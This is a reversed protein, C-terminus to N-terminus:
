EEEEGEKEKEVEEEKENKDEERKKGGGAAAYCVPKFVGDHDQLIVAGLGHYSADTRLYFKKEVDPLMLIPSKLLHAKLDNFCKLQNDSWNLKNSCNKKLLDNIPASLISFNPIFRNYYGLTGMFSRLDKKTTPVPMNVIDDVRSRIPSLCNNGLKYGLYKIENFAFFCKDPGATLGHDRLRSLVLKIHNLHNSWSKSFIVINDFYCSVNSLGSLVKRMLRVFTACATKLGFPMVKFEMLGYKTSFATFKMARPDLPVQWYGKCLDLETFYKAGNMKHLDNNISPMPEADFESYKNLTRFDVCLRISGNPKRVIVVPSCYDSTSPQIIDMDIMRDVEKNFEDLLSLPIPCNKARIPEDSQLKINHSITKTRGPTDSMVDTFSKLLCELDNIKDSSLSECFNYNGSDEDRSPLECCNNDTIAIVPQVEAQLASFLKASNLLDNVEQQIVSVKSRRHYTKLMNAHYLKLRNGVKVYYDVGNSHVDTIIYPGKWQMLFKNSSNPLMVLVEDNVKFKRSTTKKDFYEKYKKASVKANNVVVEAMSQLKDRLSIIYRYSTTLEGDISNNSVLEHLIHLPGRVNRGYLLEFPSFKLSDNPNERYAFLAVNIYKDWGNPNDICIKKLMNKLTGNMREVMGNCSAHYPSTYIAKICLLKNIESMLDSKFQTGRDSIIEKPIGVRCFIEMLAEAVSVTDINRLAVAEPYRTAMDIVTLIYKHGKKTCPTIPGILDIAIRSFLENVIPMPVLPVKKPKSSFKQCSHCSKCFRHIDLSARPWYFKQMIKDITKRSSFHGALLSEHALKMIINRYQVPVVLQLKGVDEPKSSELCKRYILDGINVYKVTQCKLTVSEENDLLKRICALSPCEKQCESFEDSNLGYEKDLSELNSSMPREKVKDKAKARTVVNVNVNRDSVFEDGNILSLGADVNHKLGPILGIIVDACRIPAVIAKVKGSFFKSEVITHVTNLYLPRGLYDYVKVKRGRPYNLPVLTDRVVVTNCGTDFVVEVSQYFIKGDTDTVCNHLKEERGLVVGIKPVVKDSKKNLKYVPCNPRIHGVEGCHHCKVNSDSKTVSNSVKPSKTINDALPKAHPKSPIKDNSKRCKKMGHAVLYRDASEALQCSNQLSQELLFSRLDHSCSSLMQDFIMFDRVSEYNKEVNALELWKDFYQGLKCNFQVFSEDTDIISDRFKRRYVNSNIHFAKLLAKKLSVFNNVIDSSLSCYIKLARGRLLTGLLMSYDDEKWKYFKALREFRDIYLDIEDVTEDFPPIKPLSSRLPDVIPNPDPTYDPSSKLKLLELEHKREEDAKKRERELKDLERKAVREEREEDAKKRVEDYEIQLKLQRQVFEDIQTGTLGQKIASDILPKVDM